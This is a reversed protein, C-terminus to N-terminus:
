TESNKQLKVSRLALSPLTKLPTQRNVPPPTPLGGERSAFGGTNVDVPSLRSNHFFEFTHADGPSQFEYSVFATAKM